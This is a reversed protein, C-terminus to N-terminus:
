WVDQPGVDRNSCGSGANVELLGARWKPWELNLSPFITVHETQAGHTHIINHKPGLIIQNLSPIHQRVPKDVGQRNCPEGDMWKWCNIAEDNSPCQQEERGIAAVRFRFYM